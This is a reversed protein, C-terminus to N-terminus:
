EDDTTTPEVIAEAIATEVAAEATAGAPGIGCGQPHARQAVGEDHRAGETLVRRPIPVHHRRAPATDRVESLVVRQDLGFDDVVCRRCRGKRAVLPQLEAKDADVFVKPKADRM